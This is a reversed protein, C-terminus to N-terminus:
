RTFWEDMLFETWTFAQMTRRPVVEFFDQQLARLWRTESFRGFFGNMSKQNAFEFVEVFRTLSGERGAEFTRYSLLEPVDRKHHRLSRHIRKMVAKYKRKRDKKLPYAEVLYITLGVV